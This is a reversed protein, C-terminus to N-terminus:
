DVETSAARARRPVKTAALADLFEVAAAYAEEYGRGMTKYLALQQLRGLSNYCTRCFTQSPRKASGCRCVAGILEKLLESPM